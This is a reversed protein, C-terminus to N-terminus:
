KRKVAVKASKVLKEAAHEKAPYIHEKGEVRGGEPKAYGFEALHAVSPKKANYVTVRIDEKSEYVVKQRWGKKYEGTDVPAEEKIEKVCEKAVKKASEKVQDAVEQKYKSLESSITVYLEEPRIRKKM